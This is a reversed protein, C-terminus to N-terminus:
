WLLNKGQRKETITMHWRRRATAYSVNAFLTQNQIDSNKDHTINFHSLFWLPLLLLAFICSYVCENLRMRYVFRGSSRFIRFDLSADCHIAHIFSFAVHISAAVHFFVTCVCVDRLLIIFNFCVCVLRSDRESIFFFIWMGHIRFPRHFVLPTKRISRTSALSLFSRCRAWRRGALCHSFFMAMTIRAWCAIFHMLYPRYQAVRPERAYYCMSLDVIHIFTHPSYLNSSENKWNAPLFNCSNMSVFNFSKIKCRRHRSLHHYVQFDISRSFTFGDM